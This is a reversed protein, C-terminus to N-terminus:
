HLILHKIATRIEMVTMGTEKSLRPLSTVVQGRKVPVGEFVSDDYNAKLLLHIFLRFTNGDQYWGWHTIQEYLKIFRGAM